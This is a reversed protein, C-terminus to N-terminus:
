TYGPSYHSDLSTFIFHFRSFVKGTSKLFVGNFFDGEVSDIVKGDKDVLDGKFILPKKIKGVFKLGSEVDTVTMEGYYGTTRKGTFIPDIKVGPPTYTLVPKGTKNSKLVVLIGSEAFNIEVHNFGPRFGKSGDLGKDPELTFSPGVIRFCSVPPHHSIQETQYTFVKGDVECTEELFEGLIPNFPKDSKWEMNVNFLGILLRAIREVPDATDQISELSLLSPGNSFTQDENMELGSKTQHIFAPASIKYIPTGAALQAFISSIVKVFSM